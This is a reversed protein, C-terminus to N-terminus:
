VFVEVVKKKIIKSPPLTGGFPSFPRQDSGESGALSPRWMQKNFKKVLVTRGAATSTDETQGAIDHQARMPQARMPQTRMETPHAITKKMASHELLSKRIDRDNKRGMLRGSATMLLRPSTVPNVKRIVVKRQDTQPDSGKDCYAANNNDCESYHSSHQRDLTLSKGGHGYTTFCKTIAGQTLGNSSRESTHDDLSFDGNSVFPKRRSDITYSRAQDSPKANVINSSNSILNLNEKKPDNFNVEKNRVKMNEYEFTQERVIGPPRQRDVSDTKNAPRWKNILPPRYEASRFDAVDEDYGNTLPPAVAQHHECLYNNIKQSNYIKTENSHNVEGNSATPSTREERRNCCESSSRNNIFDSRESGSIGSFSNHRLVEVKQKPDTDRLSTSRKPVKEATPIVHVGNENPGAIVESEESVDDPDSDSDTVAHQHLNRITSYIDSMSYRNTNKFIEKLVDCQNCFNGFKIPFESNVRRTIRNDPIQGFNSQVNNASKSNGCKVFGDKSITQLLKLLKHPKLNLKRESITFDRESGTFSTLFNRCVDCSNRNKPQDAFHVRKSHKTPQRRQTKKPRDLINHVSDILVSKGKEGFTLGVAKSSELEKCFSFPIYGVKGEYTRVFVWGGVKYVLQVIDGESVLIESSETDNPVFTYQVLAPYGLEETPENGPNPPGRSKNASSM